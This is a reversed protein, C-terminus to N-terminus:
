KFYYPQGLDAILGPQTPHWGLLEQTKTSSAPATWGWLTRRDLWFPRRGRRAVKSVVPLNLRRGIVEAIDRM